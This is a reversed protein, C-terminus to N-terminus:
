KVISFFIGYKCPNAVPIDGTTKKNTFNEMIDVMEIRM